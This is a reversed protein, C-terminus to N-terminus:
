FYIGGSVVFQEGGSMEIRLEVFPVMGSDMPAFTSGALLNLGIETSSYDEVFASDYSISLIAINLGGGVYPNLSSEGQMAIPYHGNLNIEYWSFDVGTGQDSPFFIDFSGVGILGEMFNDLPTAVRAGVGLDSDGGYSAQAGFTMQAQATTTGFSLVALIAIPLLLKRM